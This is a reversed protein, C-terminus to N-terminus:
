HWPMAIFIGRERMATGDDDRHAYRLMVMAIGHDRTATGDDDMASDNDHTTNGQIDPTIGHYHSARDHAQTTM